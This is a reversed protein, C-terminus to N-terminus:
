GAIPTARYQIRSPRSSTEDDFWLSTVSAPAPYGGTIGLPELRTRTAPTLPEGQLGLLLFAIPDGHTVAVVQTGPFRRRTRELFTHLRRFLDAPQEYGPGTGTYIDGGRADLEIGPYGQYPSNVENLLGSLRLRLDPHPRLIARATQRTRLLPSSFVAAPPQDRFRHALDTAQRQGTVSLRFRPLRGYLIRAPNHVEGHRVLCIRTPNDRPIM